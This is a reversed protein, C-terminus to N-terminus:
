MGGGVADLADTTPANVIRVRDGDVSVRFADGFSSADPVRYVPGDGTAGKSALLDRYADAFETADAPTDWALEWVYGYRDGNQYPVLTDGKWGEVVPHTYPEGTRDIAGNRQLMVWLSAQGLTDGVPDHDFREWEATSRDAVDVEVPEDDPYLSPQSVQETSAPYDDYLADVADLGGRQEVAEVFDPGVVYPYRIVALLGADFDGSASGGGGVEVCDWESACRQQYRREIRVAEGEVVGNRALQADQTAQSGDLGFQQDQLAHVLEHALTGRNIRPQDANSVVVIEDSGPSYYGLVASGFTTEFVEGIDRDEGIIFLGEWVQNNWRDHSANTAFPQNQRYQERSIVRVDVSNTFERDRLIEIRAMARSVVVQLESESLGDEATVSISDNYRYGGEVGLEGDDGSGAAVGGDGDGGALSGPAACGALVVVVLCLLVRKM